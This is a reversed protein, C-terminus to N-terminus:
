NLCYSVTSGNMQLVRYNHAIQRILNLTQESPSAEEPIFFNM